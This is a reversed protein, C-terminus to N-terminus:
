VRGVEFDGDPPVGQGHLPVKARRRDGVVGDLAAVEDKELAGTVAIEVREVVQDREVLVLEVREDHAHDGIAILRRVRHLLPEERREPVQVRETAAADLRPEVPDADVGRHVRLPGAAAARRLRIGLELVVAPLRRGALVGIRFARRHQGFAGAGQTGGEGDIVSSWRVAITSYSM